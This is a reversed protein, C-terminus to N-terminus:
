IEEDSACPRSTAVRLAKRGPPYADYLLFIIHSYPISDPPIASLPVDPRLAPNRPGGTGEADSGAVPRREGDVDEAVLPKRGTPTRVRNPQMADPDTLVRGKADGAYPLPLALSQQHTAGETGTAAMPEASPPVPRLSPLSSAARELDVARPRTYRGTLELTAHRMLRQVVRPSNGAADALTACQCRLAHFDFVLGAGDHYPIDAATLDGKLM